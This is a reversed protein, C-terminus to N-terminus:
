NVRFIKRSEAIGNARLTYFYLGQPVREGTSTLGDWPISHFGEILSADLLTQLLRGNADFVQVSVDTPSQLNFSIETGNRFPNPAAQSITAGEEEEVPRVRPNLPSVFVPHTKALVNNHLGRLEYNEITVPDRGAFNGQLNFEAIIGSGPLTQGVGLAAVDITFGSEDDGHCYALVHGGALLEGWSIGAVEILDRDFAIHVHLGKTLNRDDNLRLVYGLDPAIGKGPPSPCTAELTLRPADEVGWAAGQPPGATTRMLETFRLRNREIPDIPAPRSLARVNDFWAHTNRAAVGGTGYRHTNDTCALVFNGNIRAQHYQDGFTDTSVEMRLVMWEDSIYDFDQSDILSLTGNEYCYVSATNGGTLVFLYYNNPNRFHYVLGLANDSGDIHQMSAQIIHDGWGFGNEVWLLSWQGSALDLSEVCDGENGAGWGDQPYAVMGALSGGTFGTYFYYPWIEHGNPYFAQAVSTVALITLVAISLLITSRHKM